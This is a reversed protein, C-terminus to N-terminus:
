LILERDSPHDCKPCVFKDKFKTVVREDTRMVGGMGMNVLPTGCKPCKKESNEAMTIRFANKGIFRIMIM